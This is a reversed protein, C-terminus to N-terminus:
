KKEKDFIEKFKRIEDQTLACNMYQERYQPNTCATTKCYGYETKNDCIYPCILHRM